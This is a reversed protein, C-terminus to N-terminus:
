LHLHLNQRPRKKLQGLQVCVLEYKNFDKVINQRMETEITQERGFKLQRVPM